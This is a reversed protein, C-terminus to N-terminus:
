RRGSAEQSRGGRVGPVWCVHSGLAPGSDDQEGAGLGTCVPFALSQHPTYLSVPYFNLRVGQQGSDKWGPGAEGM